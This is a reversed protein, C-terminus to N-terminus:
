GCLYMNDEFFYRRKESILDELRKLKEELIKRKENWKEDDDRDAGEVFTFKAWEEIYKSIDDHLQICFDLMNTHSYDTRVKGGEPPENLDNECITYCNYYSVICILRGPEMRAKVCFPLMTELGHIAQDIWDFAIDDLYSVPSPKIGELQFDSWGFEPRELM